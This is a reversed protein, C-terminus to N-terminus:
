PRHNQGFVSTSSRGYFLLANLAPSVINGPQNKEKKKNKQPGFFLVAFFPLGFFYFHPFEELAM